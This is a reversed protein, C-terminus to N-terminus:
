HLNFHPGFAGNNEDEEGKKKGRMSPQHAEHNQSFAFTHKCKDTCYLDISLVLPDSKIAEGNTVAVLCSLMQLNDSLFFHMSGKPRGSGCSDPCCSLSLTNPQPAFGAQFAHRAAAHDGLKRHNVIHRQQSSMCLPPAVCPTCAPVTCACVARTCAPLGISGRAVTWPAVRPNTVQGRSSSAARRQSM